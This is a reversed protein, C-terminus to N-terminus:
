FRAMLGVILCGVVPILISWWGLTDGPATGTAASFRGYYALNTALASLHYLAWAAAAGAYGFVSAMATPLFRRHDTSLDRLRDEVARPAAEAPRVQSLTPRDPSHDSPM